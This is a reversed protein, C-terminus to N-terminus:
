QSLQVRPHRPDLNKLATEPGQEQEHRRRMRSSICRTPKERESLENTCRTSTLSDRNSERERPDKNPIANHKHNLQYYINARREKADALKM